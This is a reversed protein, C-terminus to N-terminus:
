LTVLEILGSGKGFDQKDKMVSLLRAAVGVNGDFIKAPIISKIMGKILCYHTCGLVINKIEKKIFPQLIESVYGYIAQLNNINEEIISALEKQPSVIINENSYKKLLVKFKEQRATVPTTLVLTKGKEGHEVALKIAPEVGLVPLMGNSQRRIEEVGVNTATNCAFVVASVRRALLYEFIFTMRRKLFAADKNGYPANSKDAVYIYDEHPLLKKIECLTSIGGSGSDVVGIIAM